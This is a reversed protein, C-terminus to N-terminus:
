SDIRRERRITQLEQEIMAALSEYLFPKEITRCVGLSSLRGAVDNMKLGTMVCVRVSPKLRKAEEIFQYGTKGPMDLDTIVLDVNQKRLIDQAQLASDATMINCGKLFYCLNAALVELISRNDDVILINEM